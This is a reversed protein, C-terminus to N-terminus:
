SLIKTKKSSLDPGFSHFLKVWLYRGVRALRTLIPSTVSVRGWVLKFEFFERMVKPVEARLSSYGGGNKM